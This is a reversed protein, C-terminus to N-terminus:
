KLKLIELEMKLLDLENSRCQTPAKEEDERAEEVDDAPKDESPEENKEADDKQAEEEIVPEEVIEEETVQTEEKSDEIAREKDALIELVVKKILEIDLGDKVDEQPEEREQLEEAKDELVDEQAEVVEEKIEEAVEKELAEDMQIETDQTEVNIQEQQMEEEYARTECLSGVYAPNKVLSVELLEIATVLRKEFRSNVDEVKEELARFGFSCSNIIGDKVQKYVSEDEITAEFRLGINDELLTLSGQKTSALQKNWDHEFLLPIEKARSIARQFVGKRMVEKFWKNKKRNFLMESERETVNIYGGVKLQGSNEAQLQCDKIRFEM